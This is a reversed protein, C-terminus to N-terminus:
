RVISHSKTQGNRNAGGWGEEWSDKWKRKGVNTFCLFFVTPNRGWFLLSSPSLLSSPLPFLPSSSPPFSFCSSSLLWCVFWCVFLITPTRGWFSFVYPVYLHTMACKFSDRVLYNTKQRLLLLPIGSIFSDHCMQILWPVNSHTTDCKFSDHCMQILWLVNSHTMDCIFLDCVHLTGCLFIRVPHRVGM